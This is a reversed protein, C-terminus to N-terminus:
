SNIFLIIESLIRFQIKKRFWPETL